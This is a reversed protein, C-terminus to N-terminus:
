RGSFPCPAFRCLGRRRGRRHSWIATEAVVGKSPVGQSREREPLAVRMLGWFVFEVEASVEARTSNKAM